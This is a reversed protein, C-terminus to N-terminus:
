LLEHLENESAMIKNTATNNYYVPVNLIITINQEDSTIELQHLGPYAYQLQKELDVFKLTVEEADNHKELFRRCILHYELRNAKVTLTLELSPDNENDKLFFDFSNEISSLLLLPSIYKGSTVGSINIETALKGKSSKKELGIYSKIMELEKELVVWERDSEYLIYSLLDSLHLILNAALSSSSQIHKKIAHLSHFLFRPHLQTKLLQLERSIKQKAMRENEKQDLYWKKTLKIGGSIGLITVPLFLGNVIANYKNNDFTIKDFPIHSTLHIYLVGCYFCAIFDFIVLSVMWFFFILYRSRFLYRPLVVNIFVYVSLIYFPFFFCANFASDIFSRPKLAENAGGIMLNQIIFHLALVLWFALHRYLLRKGPKKSFIFDYGTM